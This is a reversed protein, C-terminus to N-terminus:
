QVSTSHAELVSLVKVEAYNATQCGGFSWLYIFLYEPSHGKPNFTGPPDSGLVLAVEVM